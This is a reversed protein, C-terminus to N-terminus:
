TLESIYLECAPCQVIIHLHGLKPQKPFIGSLTTTPLLKKTGKIDGPDSVDLDVDLQEEPVLVHWLVILRSQAGHLADKGKGSKIADQLKDMTDEKEIQIGFIGELADKFIWCYLDYLNDM